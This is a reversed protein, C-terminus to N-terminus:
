FNTGNLTIEHHKTNRTRCRAKWTNGPSDSGNDGSMVTMIEDFLDTLLLNVSRAFLLVLRFIVLCVLLSCM